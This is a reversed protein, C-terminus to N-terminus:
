KRRCDSNEEQSKAFYISHILVIIAKQLPCALWPFSLLLVKSLQFFSRLLALNRRKPGSSQPFLQHRFLLDVPLSQGAPRLRHLLRPAPIPDASVSRWSPASLRD